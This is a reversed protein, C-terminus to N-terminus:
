NFTSHPQKGEMPGEDYDNRKNNHNQTRVKTKEWVRGQFQESSLSLFQTQSIKLDRFHKADYRGSLLQETFIQQIKFKFYKRTM